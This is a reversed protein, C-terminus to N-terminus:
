TSFAAPSTRYSATPPNQDGLFLWGITFASMFAASALVLWLFIREDRPLRRAWGPAPSAVPSEVHAM